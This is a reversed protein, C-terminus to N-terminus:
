SAATAETTEKGENAKSEVLSKRANKGRYKQINEKRKAQAAAQKDKVERTRAAWEERSKNKKKDIAKQAKRLKHVDDHVKEGAARKMAREIAKDQSLKVREEATSAQAIQQQEKEAQQIEKDLRQRKSVKKEKYEEVDAARKKFNFSSFDLDERVTAAQEQEEKAAAEREKRKAAVAAKM